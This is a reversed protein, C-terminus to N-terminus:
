ILFSLFLILFRFRAERCAVFIDGNWSGFIKTINVLREQVHSSDGGLGTGWTVVTGDRKLAAFAQSTASISVVSDRLLEDVALSNGYAGEGWCVVRGGSSGDGKILAAFARMNAIVQDVPGKITIPTEQQYWSFVSGDELKVAWRDAAGFVEAINSPVQIKRPCPAGSWSLLQRGGPLFTVFSNDNSRVEADLKVSTLSCGASPDDISLLGCLSRQGRLVVGETSVLRRFQPGHELLKRLLADVTAETDLAVLIADGAPSLVTVDLRQRKM